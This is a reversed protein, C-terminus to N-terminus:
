RWICESDAPIASPASSAARRVAMREDSAVTAMSAHRRTISASCNSAARGEKIWRSERPVPSGVRAPLGSAVASPRSSCSAGRGRMRISAVANLHEGRRGKREGRRGKREGRRGGECAGSPSQHLERLRLWLQQARVGGAQQACQM